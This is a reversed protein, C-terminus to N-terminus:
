EGAKLAQARMEAAIRAVTANETGVSRAARRLGMGDALAATCGGRTRGIGQGGFAKGSRTGKAPARAVNM